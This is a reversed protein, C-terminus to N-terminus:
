EIEIIGTITFDKLIVSYVNDQKQLVIEAQVDYATDKEDPIMVTNIYYNEFDVESKKEKLKEFFETWNLDMQRFLNIQYDTIGNNIEPFALNMKVGLGSTIRGTYVKLMKNLTFTGLANTITKPPKSDSSHFLSM